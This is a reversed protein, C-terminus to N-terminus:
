EQRPVQYADQLISAYVRQLAGYTRDWTYKTLVQQRGAAGMQAALEPAEFLRRLAVALAEVDGFPVLFGTQGDQIVEPIGGANAGIVPKGHLWAELLVIGFTDVQSPLVLVDCAALLSHKTQEDVVGLIRVRDGLVRQTEPSQSALYARLEESQPGAYIVAVPAGTSNLRAVAQALTHAGKDYTNAGLFAVTPANLGLERRFDIGPQAIGVNPPAEVGMPVLHINAPSIGLVAYKDAERQSLTLVAQARCYADVQHAMQFHAQVSASGLHMLPMVVLPKKHRRATAAAATFLGDWSSEVLQVLDAALVLRELTINLASLPPMWRALVKLLPLQITIPLGSDQLWHGARRLLGFTYPAPPPYSLPLREVAVGGVTERAPLPTSAAPPPRWFDTAQRAGTTLVTVNYNESALRRSMAEVFVVAGSVFPLYSPTVILLHWKASLSGTKM